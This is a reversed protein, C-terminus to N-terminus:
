FLRYLFPRSDGRIDDDDHMVYDNYDGDLIKDNGKEIDMMDMEDYSM